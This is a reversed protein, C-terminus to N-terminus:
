NRTPAVVNPRIDEFIAAVVQTRFVFPLEGVREIPFMVLKTEGDEEVEDMVDWSKILTQLTDNLAHANATPDVQNKDELLTISAIVKDNIKSPYYTVTVTDEGVAFTVDATNAAIKALTIPM